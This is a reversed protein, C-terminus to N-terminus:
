EENEDEWYYKDNKSFIKISAYKGLGIFGMDSNTCFECQKCDFASGDSDGAVM